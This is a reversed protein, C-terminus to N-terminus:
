QCVLSSVFRHPLYILASAAHVRLQLTDSRVGDFVACVLAATVPISIKIGKDGNAPKAAMAVHFSIM